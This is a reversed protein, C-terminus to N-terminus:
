EEVEEVEEGEGEGEDEGKTTREVEISCKAVLAAIAGIAAWVPWLAAGVVGITFPIEILTKDDENKIVLRRINGEHVLEKVKELLKVGAVRYKERKAGDDDGPLDEATTTEDSMTKRRNEHPPSEGLYEGEIM